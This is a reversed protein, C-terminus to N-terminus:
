FFLRVDSVLSNLKCEWKSAGICISNWESNSYRYWYSSLFFLGQGRPYNISCKVPLSWRKSYSGLGQASRDPKCKKRGTDTKGLLLWFEGRWTSHSVAERCISCHVLDKGCKRYTGSPDVCFLVSNGTAPARLLATPPLRKRWGLSM